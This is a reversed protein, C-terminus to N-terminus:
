IESEPEHEYSVADGSLRAPVPKDSILILLFVSLMSQFFFYVKRLLFYLYFCPSHRNCAINIYIYNMQVAFLELCLRKVKNKEYPGYHTFNNTSKQAKNKSNAGNYSYNYTSKQIHKILIM